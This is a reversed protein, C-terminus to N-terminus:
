TLAEASDAPVAKKLPTVNTQEGDFEADHGQGHPPADGKKKKATLPKGKFGREYFEHLDEALDEPPQGTAGARADTIGRAHAESQRKEDPTMDKFMDGQSGIPLGLWEAYKRRTDWNSRVEDRDWEALKLTADMLGLEVGRAKFKKRATSVKAALAKQERKLDAMEKCCELFTDQSMNGGIEEARAKEDAPTTKGEKGLQKAM